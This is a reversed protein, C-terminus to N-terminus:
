AQPHGILGDVLTELDDLNFPKELVPVNYQQLLDRHEEVEHSAGTCIILPIDHTQPDGKLSRVIDWGTVPSDLRADLIVLDPRYTKVHHLIDSTPHFYSITEHGSLRLADAITRSTDVDDEVVAVRTM